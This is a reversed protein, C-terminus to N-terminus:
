PLGARTFEQQLRPRRRHEERLEAIVADVAAAQETGAALKRVRALRRAASRYNRADAVALEGIALNLHRPLTALPDVREYAKLVDSWLRGDTLDLDHAFRWALEPEKLSTLAFAVAERPSAQLLDLVHARRAPWDAAAAERLRAAHDATPWREFVGGNFDLLAEPRHASLLDALYRAAKVAQHGGSPHDVARQAWEIALEIEGIEEFAQATDELWAPVRQDRAHTRIIAEIDHDHVALRRDNYHLVSWEHGHTSAGAGGRSPEPGLRERREALRHRYSAMGVDGLAPAYAVPDVTFFDCEQDFQFAILWDVLKAVPARAPQATHAHLDLLRQCADGIIGSSDDARMILKMASAIARQTVAFTEAPDTTAAAELLDVGAHMVEGHQNALHWRHLDSRSRILPLVADSLASVERDDWRLDTISQM